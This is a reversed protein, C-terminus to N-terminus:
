KGNKFLAITMVTATGTEPTTSISFVTTEEASLYISRYMELSSTASKEQMNLTVLFKSDDSPITNVSFSLERSSTSATNEQGFDNENYKFIQVNTEDSSLPTINVRAQDCSHMTASGLNLIKNHITRQKGRPTLTLSEVAENDVDSITYVNLLVTGALEDGQTSPEQSYTCPAPLDISGCGAMMLSLSAALVIHNFKM